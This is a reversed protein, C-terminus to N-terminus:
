AHLGAGSEEVAARTLDLRNRRRRARLAAEAVLRSLAIDIKEATPYGAIPIIEM